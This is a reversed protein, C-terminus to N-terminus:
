NQWGNYTYFQVSEQILCKCETIVKKWSNFKYKQWLFKCTLLSCDICILNNGYVIWKFLSMFKFKYLIWKMVGRTLYSNNVLHIRCVTNWLIQDAKNSIKLLIQMITYKDFHSSLQTQVDRLLSILDIIRLYFCGGICCLSQSALWDQLDEDFAM